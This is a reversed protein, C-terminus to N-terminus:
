KAMFYNKVPKITFLDQWVLIKPNNNLKPVTIQSAWLGNTDKKPVFYIKLLQNKSDVFELLTNSASIARNWETIRIDTLNNINEIYDGMGTGKPDAMIAGGEDSVTYAKLCNYSKDNYNYRDDWYLINDAQNRASTFSKGEIADANFDVPFIFNSNTPNSIEVVVSYKNSTLLTKPVDIVYFGPESITGTKLKTLQDVNGPDSDAPNNNVYLTYEFGCLAYIGVASLTEKKSTDKRVFINSYANIPAATGTATSYSGYCGDLGDYDYQYISDYTYPPM